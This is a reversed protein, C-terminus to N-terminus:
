EGKVFEDLQEKLVDYVKNKKKVLKDLVEYLTPQEQKTYEFTHHLINLPCKKCLTADCRKQGLKELEEKRYYEWDFYSIHSLDAPLIGIEEKLEGLEETLFILYGSESLKLWSTKGNKKALIVDGPKLGYFEFLEEKTRKM